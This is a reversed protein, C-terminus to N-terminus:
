SGLARRPVQVGKTLFWVAVPVEFALMPLWMLSAVTGGVLGALRLPLGVVLIISAVVGIWALSAPIMRGRLLLYCFLTSGVAFFTASLAVDDRLLYAALTHTAAGAATDIPQAKALALLAPSGSISVGGIIGEASRCVLGLMALDADEDRTISWLTVGLVLASFSQILGLIVVASIETSHQALTALKAAVDSGSTARGFLLLSAIGAVIYLLFTFGAIRANTTRTM